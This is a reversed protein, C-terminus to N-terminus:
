MRLVYRSWAAVMRALQVLDVGYNLSGLYPPAYGSEHLAFLLGRSGNGNQIKPIQSDPACKGAVWDKEVGDSGFRRNVRM